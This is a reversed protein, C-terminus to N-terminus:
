WSSSSVETNSTFVFNARNVVTKADKGKHEARLLQDMQDKHSKWMETACKFREQRNEEPDAARLEALKKKVFFVYECM